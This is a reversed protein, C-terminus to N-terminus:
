APSAAPKPQTPWCCMGCLTVCFRHCLCCCHGALMPLQAVGSRRPPRALVRPLPLLLVCKCCGCCCGCCCGGCCGPCCRVELQLRQADRRSYLQPDCVVGALVTTDGTRVLCAGDALRALRGTEFVWQRGGTTCGQHLGQGLPLAELVGEEVASGSDGGAESSGGPGTPGPLSSSAGDEAEELVAAAEQGPALQSELLLEDAPAGAKALAASASVIQRIQFHLYQTAALPNASRLM